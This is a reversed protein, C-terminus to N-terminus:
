GAPLEIELIGNIRAENRREDNEDPKVSTCITLHLSNEREQRNVNVDLLFIDKFNDIKIDFRTYINVLAYGSGNAQIEINRVNSPIEFTVEDSELHFKKSDSKFDFVLDVSNKSAPYQKAFEALVYGVVLSEQKAVNRNESNLQSVIWLMIQLTQEKEGRSLFSLLVYSAIELQEDISGRSTSNFNWHIMGQEIVAAGKLSEILDKAATVRKAVTMAYASIATERNDKLQIVNSDIFSSLKSIVDSYEVLFETSELFAIGVFATLAVDSEHDDGFEIFSGSSVNQQRKLFNLGERIHKKDVDLLSENGSIHNLCNVVSATLWVSGIPGLGQKQFSGDLKKRNLIFEYGDKFYKKVDDITVDTLQGVGILYQLSAMSQMYKFLKQDTSGTPPQSISFFQFM